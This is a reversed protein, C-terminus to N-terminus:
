VANGTRPENPIIEAQSESNIESDLVGKLCHLLLLLFEIDIVFILKLPLPVKLPLILLFPLM